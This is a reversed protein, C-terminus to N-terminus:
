QGLVIVQQGNRGESMKIVPEKKAEPGVVLYVGIGVVLLLSVIALALGIGLMLQQQDGRGQNTRGTANRSANHPQVMAVSRLVTPAPKSPAPLRKAAPAFAASKPMPKVNALVPPLSDFEFLAKDDVVM